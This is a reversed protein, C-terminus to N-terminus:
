ASKQCSVVGRAIWDNFIEAIIQRILESRTRIVGYHLITRYDEGSRRLFSSVILQGDTANILELQLTIIPVIEGQKKEDDITLIRGRIIVKTKLEEALAAYLETSGHQTLESTFVQRKQLFLRVDAENVVQAERQLLETQCIKEAILGLRPEDTDNAFPLVTIRCFGASKHQGPVETTTPTKGACAILMSCLLIHAILRAMDFIWLGSATKLPANHWVSM